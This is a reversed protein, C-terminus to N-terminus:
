DQADVRVALDNSLTYYPTVTVDPGDGSAPRVREAPYTFIRKKDAIDDLIRAVRVPEASGGPRLWLDWVPHAALPPYPLEATFGTGEAVAEVVVPPGDPHRRAWAELRAGPAVGAGYLRGRLVLGGDVVRLEGAEAHPWRQWSRVSLNGNKTAYPIYVGLWTRDAHPVRDMLSRLDNVGPLLRRPPAGDLALFVNWRGEALRVTSPLAARLTGPDGAVPALPLRVTEPGDPDGSRSRLLLGAGHDPSAAASPLPAPLRVDFTM